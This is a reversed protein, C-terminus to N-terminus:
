SVFSCQGIYKTRRNKEGRVYILYKSVRYLRYYIEIFKKVIAQEINQVESFNFTKLEILYLFFCLKSM